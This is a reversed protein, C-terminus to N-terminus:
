RYYRHLNNGSLHQNATFYQRMYSYNLQTQRHNHVQVHLAHSIYPGPLAQMCTLIQEPM